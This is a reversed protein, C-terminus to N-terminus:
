RQRVVQRVQGGDELGTVYRYTARRSISNCNFGDFFGAAYDDGVILTATRVLENPERGNLSPILDICGALLATEAAVERRAGPWDPQLFGLHRLVSEPNVRHGRPSPERSETAM